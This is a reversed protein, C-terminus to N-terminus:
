AKILLFYTWLSPFNPEFNPSCPNILKSRNSNSGCKKQVSIKPIWPSTQAKFDLCILCVTHQSQEFSYRVWPFTSGPEREIISGALILSSKNQSRILHVNIKSHCFTELVAKFYCLVYSGPFSLLPSLHTSFLFNEQKVLHNKERLHKAVKLSGDDYNGGRKGPPCGQFGKLIGIIKRGGRKWSFNSTRKSRLVIKNVDEKPILWHSNFMIVITEM